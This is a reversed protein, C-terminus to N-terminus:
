GILWRFFRIVANVVAAFMMLGGIGTVITGTEAQSSGFTRGLVLTIFGVVFVLGILGWARTRDAPADGPRYRRTETMTRAEFSWGCDCTTATATNVLMCKPCRKAPM